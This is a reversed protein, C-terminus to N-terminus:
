QNSISIILSVLSVVVPTMTAITQVWNTRQAPDLAPVEVLSGPLPRPIRGWSKTERKGSPQTVFARRNDANRTLGGAQSIYYDLDRGPVYAVVTPANVAGRVTVVSSRQPIFIEDGHMLMLNDPANQRRLAQPVDIAVRGVEGEKRIFVTGEPYAESTLGGARAILDSLREDRVTLAYPGP